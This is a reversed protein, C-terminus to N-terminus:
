DLIDVGVLGLRGRQLRMRYGAGLSEEELSHLGNHERHIVRRANIRELIRQMETETEAASDIELPPLLAPHRTVKQIEIPSLFPASPDMLAAVNRHSEGQGATQLPPLTSSVTGRRRSLLSPRGPAALTTPPRHTTPESDVEEAIGSVTGLWRRVVDITGSRKRRPCPVAAIDDQKTQKAIDAPGTEELSPALSPALFQGVDFSELHKRLANAVCPNIPVFLGACFDLANQVELESLRPGLDVNGQIVLTFYACHTPSIYILTYDIGPRLFHFAKDFNDEGVDCLVDKSQARMQKYASLVVILFRPALIVISVSRLDHCLLAWRTYSVGVRQTHWEAAHSEPCDGRISAAISAAASLGGTM